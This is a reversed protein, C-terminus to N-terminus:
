KTRGVCRQQFSFQMAPKLLQSSGVVIASPLNCVEALTRVTDKQVWEYIIYIDM